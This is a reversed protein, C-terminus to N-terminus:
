NVVRNWGQGQWDLTKKLYRTKISIDSPSGYRDSVKSSWGLMENRMDEPCEADRLRTAMTHRFSHSTPADLGLVSQIRNKAAASGSDNKVRKDEEDIYRPFLWDGTVSRVYELALGTLPIFRISSKTKLRRFPTKHLTLFPHETDLGHVDAMSLSCAESVRFGTEMMVAIMGWIEDVGATIAIRLDALQQPTFDSRDEADDGLNPIAYGTFNHLKDENLEYLKTVGTFAARICGMRRKVSMTKLGRGEVMYTILQQVEFVRYESPRRDGLVEILDAFALRYPGSKKKDSLWGQNKLHEELITSAKLVLTGGSIAVAALQEPELYLALLEDTAEVDNNMHALFLADQVERPLSEDLSDIFLDFDIENRQSRKSQPLGNRELINKAKDLMTGTLAPAKGRIVDWEAEFKRTLQSAKRIADQKNETRLSKVIKKDKNDPYHSQVDLPIRRKYYWKNSGSVKTIYQM